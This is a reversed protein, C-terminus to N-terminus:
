QAPAGTRRLTLTSRDGEHVSDFFVKLGGYAERPFFIRGQAGVMFSRSFTFTRDQGATVARSYNATAGGDLGMGKPGGDPELEWGDPLRFTLADEEAWAYPLYIPHQRTPSPFRADRARHLLAPQVLLRSGARQAYGPARLTVRVRYPENPQEHNEFALESLEVGAIDAELAERFLREREAPTADSDRERMQQAVHGTYEFTLRGELTGDDRLTLTGTRRTRSMAPAALPVTVILPTKDDLLLAYLGEHRASVHGGAAHPNGPDLFRWADGNRIAVALHDLFYPQRMAPNSIFETRDTLLALRAEVGAATALAAFLAAIEGSDGAGRTLTATADKNAKRRDARGLSDDTRKVRGRVFRLLADVKGDITTEGRTADAAATRIAATVRLEPKYADYASKGFRSWFQEVPRNVEALDAYYILMWPTVSLDPPMFPERRRAAVDRMQFFTYGFDAKGSEPVAPLNFSEVRVSYGLDRVPLTKIEYRVLYTPIDRQFPLELYNALSNDRIERWRYDIISGATVAPLVFSKAKLKLGNTEIITRDYVDADRLETITGNVGITRGEVDRVRADDDYTIDVKAHEERGRDSFVKIRLHHELITQPEDLEASDTVRITWLLAEASANPDLRPRTLAVHAPDVSPWDAAEVVTVGLFLVAVGAAVRYM